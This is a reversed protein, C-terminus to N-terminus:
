RRELALPPLEMGIESALDRAAVSLAEAREADASGGRTLLMCAYDRQTRALWPEACARENMTIGADFHRCADNWQGRTTALIGLSRAVSGTSIEPYSVAIRDEFPLLLRYLVAAHNADDLAAAADALLTLCVLWQEDFPIHAFNDQALADLEAQAQPERGLAASAAAHVCPWIVYSAYRDASASILHDIEGLRGQERRLAFLQLGYSVDVNWSGTREGVRLAESVLEEASNLRGDHLALLARLVAVLWLQAPQRLEEALKAMKTHEVGAARRDGLGLLTLV